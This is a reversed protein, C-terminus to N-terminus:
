NTTAAARAKAAAAIQAAQRAPGVSDAQAPRHDGSSLAAIMSQAVREADSRAQLIGILMFIVRKDGPAVVIIRISWV